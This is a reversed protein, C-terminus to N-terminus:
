SQYNITMDLSFHFVYSISMCHRVQISSSALTYNGAVDSCQNKPVTITVLNDDMAEVELTYM